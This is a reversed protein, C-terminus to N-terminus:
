TIGVMTNTTAMNASISTWYITCLITNVTSSFIATMSFCNRGDIQSITTLSCSCISKNHPIQILCRDFLYTLYVDMIYVVYIDIM